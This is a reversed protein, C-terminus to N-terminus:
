RIKELENLTNFSFTKFNNLLVNARTQRENFLDLFLMENNHKHKYKEGDKIYNSFENLEQQLYNAPALFVSQDHLGKKTIDGYKSFLAKITQNHPVIQVYPKEEYNCPIVVGDKLSKLMYLYLQKDQISDGWQVFCIDSKSPNIYNLAKMVADGCGFGSDIVIKEYNSFYDKNNNSCVVINTDVIQNFNEINYDLLTKGKFPVLAKPTTSNFRKQNGACLIISYIM